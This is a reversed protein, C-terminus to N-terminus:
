KERRIPPRKKPDEAITVPAWASRLHGTALIAVGAIFLFLSIIQSTSLLGNFWVGRATDGRLFELGFRIVAYGACYLGLILGKRHARAGVVWLAAALVFLAGAEFLQVPWVPLSEVAGAALLNQQLQETFANPWYTGDALPVAPVRVGWPAPCVGGFCCGAFHCGIRGFAHGVTLAIVLIDATMWFDLKRKWIYWSCCASAAVLGGLFVFGTRSFIYAAPSAFFGPLDLLIFLIRGGVFGSVGAIFALDMFVEAPFGRSRGRLAALAVAALLGLSILLGYSGLFYGGGFDVVIPHM